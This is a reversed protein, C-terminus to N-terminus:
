GVVATVLGPFALVLWCGALLCPGFPIASTMSLRRVTLGVLAVLAGLVFAIVVALLATAVSLYGTMLALSPLLKVDGLGMARPALTSLGWFLGTGIVAVVIATVPSGTGPRALEVGAIVVATIPIAPLTLADPLRHHVLDVAGLAVGLLGAWVVLAVLPGPWAVAVGIGTVAAAALELVGRRIKAGRRLAALLMRIGSGALAGALAGALGPLVGAGM